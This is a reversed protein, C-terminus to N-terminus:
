LLLKQCEDCHRDECEKLKRGLNTLLVSYRLDHKRERKAKKTRALEFLYAKLRFPQVPRPPLNEVPRQMVKVM